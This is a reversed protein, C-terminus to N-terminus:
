RARIRYARSNSELVSSQSIALWNRFEAARGEVPRRISSSGFMEGARPDIFAPVAVASPGVDVRM